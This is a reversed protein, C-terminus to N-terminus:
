ILPVGTLRSLDPESTKVPWGRERLAILAATDEELHMRSRNRDSYYHGNLTLSIGSLIVEPAGSALAYCVAFIGTSPQKVVSTGTIKRVMHERFAHSITKLAEYRYDLGELVRRAEDVPLPRLTRIVLLSRTRLGRMAERDELYRSKVLKFGGLVTLIPQPLRLALAVRGSSNVCVLDFDHLSALHPSPSSGLVVCSRGLRPVSGPLLPLLEWLIHAELVDFARRM